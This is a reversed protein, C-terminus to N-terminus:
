GRFYSIIKPIFILLGIIIDFIVLIGVAGGAADKANKADQKKEHTVLNVCEEVATNLMEAALTVGILVVLILSEVYSTKFVLGCIIALIAVIIMIFINKEHYFAYKLGEFCYKFSLMFRKFSKKEFKDQSKNKM